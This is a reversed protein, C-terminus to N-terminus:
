KASQISMLRDLTAIHERQRPLLTSTVIARCEPCEKGFDPDQLAREYDNRGHEEGEKLAKLAAVNGFLKATGEVARAFTGWAGPSSAPQGGHLTIHRKLIDAAEKHENEIRRLDAAGPEDSIKERAQGYTDVAALEGRLLSQLEDLKGPVMTAM